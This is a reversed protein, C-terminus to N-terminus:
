ELLHTHGHGCYEVMTVKADKVLHFQKENANASDVSSEISCKVFYVRNFYRVFSSWNLVYNMIDISQNSYATKYCRTSHM